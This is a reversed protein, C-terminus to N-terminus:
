ARTFSLDLEKGLSTRVAVFNTERSEDIRYKGAIHQRIFQKSQLYRSARGEDPIEHSFYAWKLWPLDWKVLIAPFFFWSKRAWRVIIRSCVTERETDFAMSDHKSSKRIKWWYSVFGHKFYGKITGLGKIRQEHSRHCFFSYIRGEIGVCSKGWRSVAKVM